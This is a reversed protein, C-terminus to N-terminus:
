RRPRPAQYVTVNRSGGSLAGIAAGIGGGFLGSWGGVAMRLGFKPNNRDTIYGANAVGCVFTPVFGILAGWLASRRRSGPERVQVRTLDALDFVRIARGKTIELRNGNWDALRGEVVDRARTTVVIREGPAVQRLASWDAEQAAVQMGILLAVGFARKM